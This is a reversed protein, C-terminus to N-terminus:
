RGAETVRRDRMRTSEACTKNKRRQNDHKEREDYDDDLRHGDDDRRNRKTSRPEHGHGVDPGGASSRRQSTRPEQGATACYRFNRPLQASADCGLRL